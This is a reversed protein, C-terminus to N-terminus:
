ANKIIEKLKLLEEQDAFVWLGDRLIWFECKSEECSHDCCHKEKCITLKGCHGCLHFTLNKHRNKLILEIQGSIHRCRGLADHYINWFNEDQRAYFNAEALWESHALELKKLLSM